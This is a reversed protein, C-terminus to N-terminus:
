PQVNAYEEAVSDLLTLSAEPSLAVARALDYSRWYSAVTETDDLIQGSHVGESYALDPADDFSMLSVMGAVMPHAGDQCRLVQAIIRGARARAAISRLQEAMVAPGGVPIRLVTEHLIAWFAPRTPDDLRAARQLRVRAWEDAQSPLALPNTAKILARLYAESQLLGPVLNPAYECISSARAEHWAAEAFYTPHGNTRLPRANQVMRCLRELYGDSELAADLRVSLDVRPRRIATEIQGVYAGSIFVLAGLREQSLQAEERLRRLESGYYADPSQFPDLTKPDAVRHV